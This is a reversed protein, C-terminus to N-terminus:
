RNVRLAKCRFTLHIIGAASTGTGLDCAIKEFRSVRFVSNVKIAHYGPCLQMSQIGHHLWLWLSSSSCILYFQLWKQLAKTAKPEHSGDGQIQPLPNQRCVVSAVVQAFLDRATELDGETQDLFEQLLAPAGAIDGWAVAEGPAFGGDQGGMLDLHAPQQGVFRIQSQRFQALGRAQAACQRGNM